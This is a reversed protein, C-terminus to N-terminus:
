SNKERKINYLYKKKLYLLVDDEKICFISERKHILFKNTLHVLCNSKLIFYLLFISMFFFIFLYIFFHNQDKISRSHKVRQKIEEFNLALSRIKGKEFTMRYYTSSRSVLSTQKHTNNDTCVFNREANREKSGTIYSRSSEVGGEPERVDKEYRFVIGSTTICCRAIVNKSM